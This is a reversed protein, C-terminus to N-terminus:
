TSISLQIIQFLVIKMFISKTNFLRCLNIHWLVWAVLGFWYDIKIVGEPYFFFVLQWRVLLCQVKVFAFFLTNGRDAKFWQNLNSTTFGPTINLETLLTKSIDGWKLKHEPTLMEPGMKCVSLEDWLDYNFCHPSIGIPYAIQQVTLRRDDLIM